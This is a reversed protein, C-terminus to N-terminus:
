VSGNGPNDKDSAQGTEIFLRTWSPCQSEPLLLLLLFLLALLLLFLLLLLAYPPSPLSSFWSSSPLYSSYSTWSSSFVSFSHSNMPLLLSLLLIVPCLLLLLLLLVLLLQNKAKSTFILLQLFSPLHSSSSAHHLLPLWSPHFSFLEFTLYKTLFWLGTGAQCYYKLKWWQWWQSRFFMVVDPGSTFFRSHVCWVLLHCCLSM